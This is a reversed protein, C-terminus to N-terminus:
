EEWECILAKAHTSGHRWVGRNCNRFDDMTSCWAITAVTSIHGCSGAGTV